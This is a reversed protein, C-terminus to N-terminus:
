QKMHPASNLTKSVTLINLYLIFPCSLIEITIYCGWEGENEHRRRLFIYDCKQENVKLVIWTNLTVKVQSLQYNGAHCFWRSFDLFLSILFPLSCVVLNGLKVRFWLEALIIIILIFSIYVNVKYCIVYKEKQSIWSDAWM